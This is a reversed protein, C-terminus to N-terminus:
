ALCCGQSYSSDITKIPYGYKAGKGCMNWKGLVDKLNVLVSKQAKLKTQLQKCTIRNDPETLYYSKVCCQENKLCSLEGKNSYIKDLSYADEKCFSSCSGRKNSVSACTAIPTPQQVPLILKTLAPEAYLVLKNKMKPNGKPEQTKVDVKDAVIEKSFSLSASDCRTSSWTFQPFFKLKNVSIVKEAKYSIVTFSYDQHLPSKYFCNEIKLTKLQYDKKLDFSVLTNEKMSNIQIEADKSFTEISSTKPLNVQEGTLQNESSFSTFGAIAISLVFLFILFETSIYKSTKM